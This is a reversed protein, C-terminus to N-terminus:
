LYPLGESETRLINVRIQVLDSDILGYPLLFVDILVIECYDEYRRQLSHKLCNVYLLLKILKHMFYHLTTDVFIYM